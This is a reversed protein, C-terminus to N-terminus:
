AGLATAANCLLMLKVPEIMERPICEFCRAQRVLTAPDMSGGALSALLYLEVADRQSKTLCAFCKAATTIAAPDCTSVPMIHTGLVV